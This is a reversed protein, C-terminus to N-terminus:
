TISVVSRKIVSFESAASPFRVRLHDANIQLGRYPFLLLELIYQEM